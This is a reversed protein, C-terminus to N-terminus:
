IQVLHRRIMKLTLHEFHAIPAIHTFGNRTIINMCDYKPSFCYVSSPLSLTLLISECLLM